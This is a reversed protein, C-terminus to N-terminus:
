KASSLYACESPYERALKTCYDDLAAKSEFQPDPGDKFPVLGIDAWTVPHEAEPDLRRLAREVGEGVGKVMLWTEHDVGQGCVGCQRDDYPWGEVHPDCDVIRIYGRGILCTNCSIWEAPTESPMSASTRGARECGEWHTKSYHDRLGYQEILARYHEVLIDEYNTAM